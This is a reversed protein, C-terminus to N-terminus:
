RWARTFQGYERLVTCIQEPTVQEPPMLFTQSAVTRLERTVLTPSNRPLEKIGEVAEIHDRILNVEDSM